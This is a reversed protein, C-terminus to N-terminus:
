CMGKEWEQRGKGLKKTWMIIKQLNGQTAKVNIQKLGITVKEDNTAYQCAKSMIHGFCTGEYVRQLKLPRYDVISCLTTAMFMLNSGEDKVFTIMQHMLEYKELLSCLQVVMSLGITEHLEFLGITVHQPMWFENLYNIVLAFTDMSGKSMWLDFSTSLTTAETLRLLVCLQM